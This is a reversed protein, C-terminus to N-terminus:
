RLKLLTSVTVDATDEATTTLIMDSGEKGYITIDNQLLASYLCKLNTVKIEIHFPDGNLLDRLKIQKTDHYIEHYTDNQSAHTFYLPKGEVKEMMVYEHGNKSICLIDGIMKKFDKASMSFSIPYSDMSEKTLLLESDYLEQDENFTSLDVRHKGERGLDLNRLIIYMCNINDDEQIFSITTISSDITNFINEIRDMTVNITFEGSCFYRNIKSGEIHVVTRQINIHDRVFFAMYKPNCKIHIEKAKINKFYTFINKFASPTDYLFELRYNPESPVDIIGQHEITHMDKRAPPRGPGKKAM